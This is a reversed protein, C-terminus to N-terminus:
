IIFIQIVKLGQIIAAVLYSRIKTSALCIFFLDIGILFNIVVVDSVRDQFLLNLIYGCIGFHIYEFPPNGM